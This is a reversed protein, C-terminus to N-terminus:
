DHLADKLPHSELWGALANFSLESFVPLEFLAPVHHRLTAANAPHAEGVLVLAKPTLGRARLSELTLLTHNLTGLASRAVLLVDLGETAPRRRALWDAQTADGNLPVLLGGALEVVLRRPLAARRHEQLAAELEDVDVRSGEEAAATHPSAPLKFWYRPQAIERSTEAAGLGCPGALRAVEATDSDDGTQVPKWYRADLALAATASVVTKGIDTDTGVIVLPRPTAAAGPVLTMPASGLARLAAGLHSVSAETQNARCVVRLRATGEPVTPPRVARVDFGQRLLAAQAEIAQSVKGLPVPVIASDPAPAGVSGAVSEAYRRLRTRAEDADAVLGIAAELAGVVAPSVATSFVFGRGRHILLEALAKSGVICGGAAGLAKGGTAIRALPRIDLAACGGRGGPGLVGVAHAEDVILGARYEDCAQQLERLPALDGDMSFVAETVVYRRRAGQAGKLLRAAEEADGHRYIRITAGSLRMADILSAHNLEDSVVVDGRGAIAPILTVNAQYGSPLLLAAEDGLWDALKQEVARTAPSGGGLLRSARGSAGFAELARVAGSVIAEHSSLGLYDNSTFDVVGEASSGTSSGAAPRPHLSRGLGRAKWRDVEEAWEAVYAAANSSGKM